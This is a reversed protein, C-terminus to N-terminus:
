PHTVMLRVALWQMCPVAMSNGLAKYRPGDAAPKGRHPILTYNDPFGQLRECEVPMLRRVTSRIQVAPGSTCDLTHTVEKQIGWGNSSTNALRISHAIDGTKSIVTSPRSPRNEGEARLTGAIVDEMWYGQGSERMAIFTESEFDMRGGPSANCATAVNIPGSTNGGGFAIIPQGRGTGDESADFGEARLTHTIDGTVCVVCDQGRTDGIRETGVGNARLSPAITGTFDKGTERRPAIDRRMGDFEFLLKAADFGNRASAVVFVRRRRQAVGFYQADLVRWAVTRKPGYACGVNSWASNNPIESKEGAFAAILCGFANTKDSLIGPVNEYIVIVEPRNHKRRIADIHNILKAYVLTLNGRKDNLGNRAGAVSFSQCPPGGVVIDVNVLLSEPWTEFNTMDGFNPVTPYHHKLVSCAFPEIESFAVAKWGFVRWAVTAASLGSCICLYNM